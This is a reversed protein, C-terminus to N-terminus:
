RQWQLGGSQGSPPAQSWLRWQQEEPTQGTRATEYGYLQQQATPGMRSWLQASPTTPKPMGAMGEPSYGPIPEGTKLGYQQPMLPLMWPQVTPTTGTYSAYELWSRPNAALQAIKQRRTEEAQMQAQQQNWGMTEKFQQQQQALNAAEGASVGGPPEPAYKIITDQEVWQGDKVVYDVQHINGYPDPYFTASPKPGLKPTPPEYKSVVETSIINGDKDYTVMYNWKEDHTMEQKFPVPKTFDPKTGAGYGKWSPVWYPEGTISDKDLEWVYGSPPPDSPMPPVTVGAGIADAIIKNTTTEDTGAAAGFTPKEATSTPASPIKAWGTSTMVMPENMGIIGQGLASEWPPIIAHVYTVITGVPAQNSFYPEDPQRTGAPTAPTEPIPVSAVALAAQAAQSSPAGYTQPQYGGEWYAIDSFDPVYNGNAM